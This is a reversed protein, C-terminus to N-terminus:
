GDGAEGSEECARVFERFLARSLANSEWALEPHWQVGVVWRDPREDEVAEILGDATWATARLNAGLRELAQHHHSNVALPDADSIRALLSDPQIKLTHSDRERPSGQEHQLAEPFSSHIDQILTGGRHVNLAQMGYCIALVPLGASEAEELLLLDTLDRLPHVQKLNRHPESGYLLPDVDSASGPLLVGRLRGAVGRVFDERPLLPLHVPLGGAAEVAEAYFRALYFKETDLEHRTTIGILPRSNKM